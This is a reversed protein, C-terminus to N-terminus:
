IELKERRDRGGFTRLQEPTLMVYLAEGEAFLGGDPAILRARVTVKRGDVGAVWAEFTAWAGLPVMRVFETTLRAAVSPYGAVWAAGGMAEDLVAALCGGHVIGPPGQTAPGFWCRGVLAGDSKRRFYTLRLRADPRGGALFSEYGEPSPFPWVPEWDPEASLSFSSDGGAM